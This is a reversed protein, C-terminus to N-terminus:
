FFLTSFCEAVFPTSDLLAEQLAVPAAGEMLFQIIRKKDALPINNAREVQRMMGVVTVLNAGTLVSRFFNSLRGLSESPLATLGGASAIEELSAAVDTASPLDFTPSPTTAVEIPAPALNDPDDVLTVTPETAVRGRLKNKKPAVEPSPVPAPTPESPSAPKRVVEKYLDKGQGKVFFEKLQGLDPDGDPAYQTRIEIWDAWDLQEGSRYCNALIEVLADCKDKLTPVERQSLQGQLLAVQGKLSEIETRLEVEILSAKTVAERAQQEAIRALQEVRKIMTADM